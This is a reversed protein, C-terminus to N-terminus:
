ALAAFAVKGLNVHKKNQSFFGLLIEAILPAILSPMNPM